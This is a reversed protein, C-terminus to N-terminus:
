PAPLADRNSSNSPARRSSRGPKRSSTSVHSSRSRTRSRTPAFVRAYRPHLDRDEAAADASRAEQAPEDIRHIRGADSRDDVDAVVEVHEAEGHRRVEVADDIRQGVQGVLLAAPPPGVLRPVRQCGDFDEAALRPEPEAVAVEAQLEHARLSQARSLRKGRHGRLERGCEPELHRDQRRRVIPQSRPEVRWVAADVELVPEDRAGMAIGDVANAELVRTVRARSRAHELREM